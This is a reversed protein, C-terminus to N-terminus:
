STLQCILTLLHILIRTDYLGLPLLGPDGRTLAPTSLITVSFVQLGMQYGAM